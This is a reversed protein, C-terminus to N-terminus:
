SVIQCMSKSSKSLTPLVSIPCYSNIDDHPGSKHLPSIKAEKWKNPFSATNVSQNCTFTIDESIYPAALKLLHPGINDTGTAKCIDNNLLYM